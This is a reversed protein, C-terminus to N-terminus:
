ETFVKRGEENLFFSNSYYKNESLSKDLYDIYRVNSPLCDRIFSDIYRERFETTFYAALSPHVPPMVVIPKLDHSKCYRIIDLFVQKRAERGRQNEDSM